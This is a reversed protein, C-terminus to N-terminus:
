RLGAAGLGAVYTEVFENRMFGAFEKRAFSCTYDPKLRQLQAAVSIAERSKGRAGLVALLTAFAWHTANPSHTARTAAREAEDLKDLDFLVLAKVHHFTWLHPDRPSLQLAMDVYPLCENSRDGYFLAQGLGFYAQALSPNLQITLRLEAIAQDYHAQLALARGVVFHGFAERQDLAVACRGCQLAAQVEADRASHAGYWFRQIHVYGLRAHASAFKPDSSIAANLLREAHNLGSETFTYLHKLGHYYLARTNWRGSVPKTALNAESASLEPEISAAASHAIKTQIAFIDDLNEDYTESWLMIGSGADTLEAVVRIRDKVIRASGEVIYGVGLENGAQSAKIPQDKYALSTMPSIVLLNRFKSLASIIDETLGDVVFDHAMDVGLYRLPLVAVSPKERSIELGARALTPPDSPRDDPVRIAAVFRFGRRQITQILAQREGTDGIAKRVATIRSSLTSESVIRGGWVSAILDDKSVVRDRNEILYTLLDFVQPEIEVRDPGRRLERRGVDLSYDNFVFRM